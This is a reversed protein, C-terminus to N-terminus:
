LLREDWFFNELRLLKVKKYDPHRTNIMYNSESPLVASPVKLVLSRNKPLDKETIETILRPEDSISIVMVQYNFAPKIASRHVVLELTSLARNCATYIVWEQDYNWRNAVGSATLAKAYKDRAIRYVEM